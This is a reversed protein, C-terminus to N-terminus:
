EMSPLVITVKFIGNDAKTEFAGEYKEVVIEMSRLGYGHNIKDKKTTFFHGNNNDIIEYPNEESIVVAGMKQSVSLSISRKQTPVKLAAEIANDLMNGFLTYLDVPDVKSLLNGDVVCTFLIDNEICIHNKQTLITDLMDCGTRIFSDYIMVADEIESLAKERNEESDMQKIAAVQHKIDHCKRNVLEVNEKYSEFQANQSVLLQERIEHMQQDSLAQQREMQTGLAFICFIFAYVGHTEVYGSMTAIASLYMVILGSVFLLFITEGTQTRYHKDRIVRSAFIRDIIFAYAFLFIWKFIPYGPIIQLNPFIHLMIAEICYESHEALYGLTVAYFSELYSAKFFFKVWFAMVLMTLVCFFITSIVEGVSSTSATTRIEARFVFVDFAFSAAVILLVPLIMLIPSRKKRKLRRSFVYTFILQRVLFM